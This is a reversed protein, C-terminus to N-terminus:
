EEEEELEKFSFYLELINGPLALVESVGATKCFYELTRNGYLLSHINQFLSCVLYYIGYPAEAPKIARKFFLGKWNEAIDCFGFESVCARIPTMISNDHAAAATLNGKYLPKILESPVYLKDATVHIHPDGNPISALVTTLRDIINSEYVMMHDNYRGVYPGNMDIILGRADHLGQFAFGHGKKKSYMNRQLAGTRRNCKLLTGDISLGVNQTYVPLVGNNLSRAQLQFARRSAAFYPAWFSLANEIRFGHRHYIFNMVYTIIRSIRSLEGGFMKEMDFLRRPFAFRHFTILLAEQACVVAGNDMRFDKLGLLHLIKPLDDKRFRYDLPCDSDTVNHFDLYKQEQTIHFGAIERDIRYKRMANFAALIYFIMKLRRNKIVTGLLIYRLMKSSFVKSNIFELRTKSLYRLKLWLQGARLRVM